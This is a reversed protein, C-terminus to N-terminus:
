SERGAVATRHIQIKERRFFKNKFKLGPVRRYGMIVMM